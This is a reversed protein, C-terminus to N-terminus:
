RHAVHLAGQQADDLASCVTHEAPLRPHPQPPGPASRDGHGFALVFWGLGAIALAVDM